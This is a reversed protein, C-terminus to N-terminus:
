PNASQRIRSSIWLVVVILIVLAILAYPWCALISNGGSTQQSTQPANAVGAQLTAAQETPSLNLFLGGVAPTDTPTGPLGLFLSGTPTETITPALPILTATSTSTPFGGGGDALVREPMSKAMAILVILIVTPLIFSINKRGTFLRRMFSVRETGPEAEGM